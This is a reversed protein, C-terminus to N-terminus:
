KTSAFLSSSPLLLSTPCCAWQLAQMALPSPATGCTVRAGAPRARRGILISHVGVGFELLLAAAVLQAHNGGGDAECAGGAHVHVITSMLDHTSSSNHAPASRLPTHPNKRAAAQFTNVTTTPEVGGDEKAAAGTGVTDWDVPIRSSAPARDGGVCGALVDDLFHMGLGALM